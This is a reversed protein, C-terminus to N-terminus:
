AALAFEREGTVKHAAKKVLTVADEAQLGDSVAGTSGARGWNSIGGVGSRRRFRYCFHYCLIRRSALPKFGAGVATM